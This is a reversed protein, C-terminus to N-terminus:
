CLLTPESYDWIIMLKSQSPFTNAHSPPVVTENGISDPDTLWDIVVCTDLLLRM